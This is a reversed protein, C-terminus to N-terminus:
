IILTIKYLLVTRNLVLVHTNFSSTSALFSIAPCVVQERINDASTSHHAVRGKVQATPKDTAEVGNEAAVFWIGAPIYYRHVM